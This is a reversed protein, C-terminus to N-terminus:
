RSGCAERVDATTGCYSASAWDVMFDPYGQFDHEITLNAPKNPLTGAIEPSVIIFHDDQRLGLEELVQWQYPTPFIVRAKSM